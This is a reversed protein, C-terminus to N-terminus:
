YQAHPRHIYYREFNYRNIDRRMGSSYNQMHTHYYATDVFNTHKDHLLTSSANATFAFAMSSGMLTAVITIVPTTRVLHDGTQPDWEPEGPAIKRPSEKLVGLAKGRPDRKDRLYGANHLRTRPTHRRPAADNAPPPPERDNIAGLSTQKIASDCYKIFNKSAAVVYFLPAHKRSSPNIQFPKRTVWGNSRDRVFSQGFSPVERIALCSPCGLKLGSAPLARHDL